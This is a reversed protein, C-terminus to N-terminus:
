SSAIEVKNKQETYKPDNWPAIFGQLSTWYKQNDFNVKEVKGFARSMIHRLNQEWMLSITVIKFQQCLSRRAEETWGKDIQFM